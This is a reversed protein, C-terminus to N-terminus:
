EEASDRMGSSRRRAEAIARDANEIIDDARSRTHRMMPEAEEDEEDGLGERFVKEATTKVGNVIDKAGKTLSELTDSMGRRLESGEAPAYLLAITAGVIGGVLAGLAFPMFKSGGRESPRYREYRYDEDEPHYTGNTRSM